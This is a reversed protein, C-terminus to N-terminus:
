KLPSAQFMLTRRNIDEITRKTIMNQDITTTTDIDQVAAVILNAAQAIAQVLAYQLDDNSAEITHGLEMLDAKTISYPVVTGTAMLPVSYAIQSSIAHLAGVQANSSEAIKNCIAEGIRGGINGMGNVVASYMTSALQSKNLVETRGGVHGVIEPGREGAVFMTGHPSGGAAYQPINGAYKRASVVGGKAYQPINSWKGNQYVGGKAKFWSTLKAKFSLVKDKLSDTWSTLKAKFSIVKNNLSDTWSNMKAKFSIVKDKLSDGWSSM